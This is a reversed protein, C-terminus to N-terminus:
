ITAAFKSRRRLAVVGGAGLLGLAAGMGIGIGASGWDFWSQDASQPSPMSIPRSDDTVGRLDDVRAAPVSFPEAAKPVVRGEHFQVNLVGLPRGLGDTVQRGGAHHLDAVRAAPTSFPQVPDSGVAQDTRAQAM